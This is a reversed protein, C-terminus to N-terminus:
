LGRATTGAAAFCRGVLRGLNPTALPGTVVKCSAPRPSPRDARDRPKIEAADVDVARPVVIVNKLAVTINAEASNDAGNGDILRVSPVAVTVSPGPAQFLPLRDGKHTHGGDISLDDTPASPVTAAALLATAIAAAAIGGLVALTFSPTAPM